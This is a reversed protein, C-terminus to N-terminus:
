LAILTDLTSSSRGPVGRASSTGTGASDETGLVEATWFIDVANGGIDLISFVSGCGGPIESSVKFEDGTWAIAVTVVLPGGGIWWWWWWWVTPELNKYTWHM